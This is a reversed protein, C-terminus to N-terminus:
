MCFHCDGADEYGFSNMIREAEQYSSCSHWKSNKGSGGGQQKYRGCTAVHIRSRQVTWNQYVRHTIKIKSM